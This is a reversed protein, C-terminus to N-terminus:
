VKKCCGRRHKKQVGYVSSQGCASVYATRVSHMDNNFVLVIRAYCTYQVYMM